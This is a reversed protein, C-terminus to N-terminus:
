LNSMIGIINVALKQLFLSIKFNMHFYICLVSNGFTVKFSYFRYVLIVYNWSKYIFSCFDHGHYHCVSLCIYWHFLICNMFLKVCVHLISNQCVYLSLETFFIIKMLNHCYFVMPLFLFVFKLKYRM